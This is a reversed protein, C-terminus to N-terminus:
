TQKAQQKRAHMPNIWGENPKGKQREDAKTFVVEGRGTNRM